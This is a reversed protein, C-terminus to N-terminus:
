WHPFLDRSLKGTMRASDRVTEITYWGEPVALGRSTVGSSMRGAFSELWESTAKPDGAMTAGIELHQQTEGFWVVVDRVAAEPIHSYILYGFAHAPVKAALSRMPPSLEGAVATKDRHDIRVVDGTWRMNLKDPQVGFGPVVEAICARGYAEPLGVAFVTWAGPQGAFVVLKLSKWIQAICPVHPLM